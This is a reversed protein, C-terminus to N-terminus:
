RLLRRSQGHVPGPGGRPHASRLYPQHVPLGSRLPRHRGEGPTPPGGDRLSRGGARHPPHHGHGVRCDPSLLRRPHHGPLALGGLTRIYTIDGVYKEDPKNATFDRNMLDPAVALSADRETTKRYRRRHTGIIGLQHMLRRVRKGSCRVNHDYRLEDWIRPMGYNGRSRTHISAILARLRADEKKRPCEPRTRWAYYGSPSVGLLRSMRRVDHNAKEREM